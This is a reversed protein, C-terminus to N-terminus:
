SHKTDSNYLILNANCKHKCLYLSLAIRHEIRDRIEIKKNCYSFTMFDSKIGSIRLNGPSDDKCMTLQAVM